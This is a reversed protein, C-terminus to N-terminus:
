EEGGKKALVYVKDAVIRCGGKRTQIRVDYGKRLADNITEIDEETIYPKQKKSEM